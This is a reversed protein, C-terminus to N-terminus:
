STRQPYAVSVCTVGPVAARILRSTIDQGPTSCAGCRNPPTSNRRPRRSSPWRCPSRIASRGNGRRTRSSSIAAPRAAAGGRGARSPSPSRTSRSRDQHRRHSRAAAFSRRALARRGAVRARGRAPRMLAYTSIIGRLRHLKWELELPEQRLGADRDQRRHAAVAAGRCPRQNSRWPPLIRIVIYVLGASRVDHSCTRDRNPLSGVARTDRAPTSIHSSGSSWTM